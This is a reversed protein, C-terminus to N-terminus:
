CFGQGPHVPLYVKHFTPTKNAESVGCDQLTQICYVTLHILGVASATFKITNFKTSKHNLITKHLNLRMTLFIAVTFINVLGLM